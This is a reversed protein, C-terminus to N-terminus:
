HARRAHRRALLFINIMILVINAMANYKSHEHGNSVNTMMIWM